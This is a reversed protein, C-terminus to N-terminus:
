QNVCKHKARLNNPHTLWSWTSESSLVTRLLQTTVHQQVMMWRSGYSIWWREEQFLATSIYDWSYLGVRAACHACFGSIAASGNYFRASFIFSPPQTRARLNMERNYNRQSALQVHIVAGTLLHWSCYLHMDCPCSIYAPGFIKNQEAVAWKM